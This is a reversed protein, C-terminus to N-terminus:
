TLNVQIMDKTPIGETICVIVEIGAAAAEM